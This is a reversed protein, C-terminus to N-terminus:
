SLKEDKLIAVLNQYAFIECFVPSYTAIKVLENPLMRFLDYESLIDWFDRFYTNSTVNMENFEFHIVKVMRKSLYGELGKIVNLENGETDIKLLDIKEIKNKKLYFDLTIVNVIHETTQAKHIKEIVEKYLSAHSSGDNDKYDYLSLQGVHNGVAFNNPHFQSSSINSLLKKFTQPHPEFAHIVVEPNISYIYKSYEGVNAGVDFIILEKKGLLYKKIFAAEGSLRNTEFNLIGMGKLSCLYLFKNLKYFVKRGFLFRYSNLALNIM